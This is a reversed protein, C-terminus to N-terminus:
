VSVGFLQEFNRTTMAALEALSLGKIDAVAQAVAPVYKPENKKGRYPVPALYPSDTEILLRDIPIKKAVEKLEKANAFSVIGSLSIYFGLDLAAKATEWDETFCHLVGKQAQYERLLKITDARADRTHVILPKGTQNSVVIHNIFSQQQQEAHEPHYYYDLGTEGIAIVKPPQALESLKEITVVTTLAVDSPHVGVSMSVDQHKATIDSLVPVDELDVCVTLFHQVGQERAAQLAADLDGHYAELHLRDLHCHSDVFM